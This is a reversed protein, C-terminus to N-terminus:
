WAASSPRRRRPAAPKVRSEAFADGDLDSFNFQLLDVASHKNPLKELDVGFLNLAEFDARATDKRMYLNTKLTEMDKRGWLGIM